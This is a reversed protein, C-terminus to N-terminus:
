LCHVTEEDLFDEKSQEKQHLGIVTKPWLSLKVGNCPLASCCLCPIKGLSAPHLILKWKMMVKRQDWPAGCGGEKWMGVLCSRSFQQRKKEENTLRDMEVNECKYSLATWGGGVALDFEWLENIKEDATQGSKFTLMACLACALSICIIVRFIVELYSKILYLNLNKRFVAKILTFKGRLIPTM